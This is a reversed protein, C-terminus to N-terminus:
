DATGVQVESPFEAKRWSPASCHLPGPLRKLFSSVIFLPLTWLFCGTSRVSVRLQSGSTGPHTRFSLGLVNRQSDRFYFLAALEPEM